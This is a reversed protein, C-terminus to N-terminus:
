MTWVITFRLLVCEVFACGLAKLSLQTQGSGRRGNVDLVLVILYEPALHQMFEIRLAFEPENCRTAVYAAVHRTAARLAQLVFREEVALEPYGDVGVVAIQGFFAVDIGAVVHQLGIGVAELVVEAIGLVALTSGHRGVIVLSCLLRMAEAEGVEKAGIGLDDIRQEHPLEIQLIDIRLSEGLAHEVPQQCQGDSLTRQFTVALRHQLHQFLPGMLEEGMQFSGIRLSVRRPEFLAAMCLTHSTVVTVEIHSAVLEVVQDHQLPVLHIAPELLFQELLQAEVFIILDSLDPLIEIQHQAQFIRSACTRVSPIGLVGLIRSVPM